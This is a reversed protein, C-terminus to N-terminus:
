SGGSRTCYLVSALHVFTNRLRLLVLLDIPREVEMSLEMHRLRYLDFWRQSLSTVVILWVAAGTFGGQILKGAGCRRVIVRTVKPQPLNMPVLSDWHQPAVDCHTYLAGIAPPCQQANCSVPLLRDRILDM